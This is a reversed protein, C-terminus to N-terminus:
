GGGSHSSSTRVPQIFKLYLLAEVTPGVQAVYDGANPDAPRDQAALDAQLPQMLALGESRAHDFRGEDTTQTAKAEALWADAFLKLARPTQRARPELRAATTVHKVVGLGRELVPDTEHEIAAWLRDFAEQAPAVESLAEYGYAVYVWEDADAASRIWAELSGPSMTQLQEYHVATDGVRLVRRRRVRNGLSHPQDLDKNLVIFGFLGLVGLAGLAVLGAGSFLWLGFYRLGSVRWKRDEGTEADVIEGYTVIRVKDGNRKKLIKWYDGRYDHHVTRCFEDGSVDWVVCLSRDVAKWTGTEEGVRGSRVQVFTGDDAYRRTFEYGDKHHTGGASAGTMLRTIESRDLTHSPGCGVLWVLTVVSLILRTM